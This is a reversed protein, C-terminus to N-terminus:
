SHWDLGSALSPFSITLEKPAKITVSQYFAKLVIHDNLKGIFPVEFIYCRKHHDLSMSDPYTGYEKFIKNFAWNIVQKEHDYAMVCKFPLNWSLDNHSFAISPTNHHNSLYKTKGTELDTVSAPSLLNFNFGPHCANLKFFEESHPSSNMGDEDRYSFHTGPWEQECIEVLENPKFIEHHTGIHIVYFSEKNFIGYVLEDGIGGKNSQRLHVHSINCSFLLYDSQDWTRTKKSVFNNIDEGSEIRAKLRLWEKNEGWSKSVHSAVFVTRKVPSIRRHKLCAYALPYIAGPINMSILLERGFEEVIKREYLRTYCNFDESFM